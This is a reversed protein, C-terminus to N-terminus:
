QQEEWGTPTEWRIIEHPDLMMIPAKHTDNLFGEYHRDERNAVYVVPKENDKLDDPWDADLVKIVPHEDPDPHNVPKRKVYLQTGEDDDGIEVTYSNETTVYDGDQSEVVDQWDQYYRYDGYGREYIKRIMDGPRFRVNGPEVREWGDHETTRDELTINQDFDKYIRDREQETLLWWAPPKRFADIQSYFRQYVTKIEYKTLKRGMLTNETEHLLQHHRQSGLHHWVQMEGLRLRPRLTTRLLERSLPLNPM